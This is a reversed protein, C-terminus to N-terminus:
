KKSLVKCKIETDSSTSSMRRKNPMSATQSIIHDLTLKRKSADWIETLKSSDTTLDKLINNGELQLTQLLKVKTNENNAYYKYIEVTLRITHVILDVIIFIQEYSMTTINQLHLLESVFKSRIDNDWIIDKYLDDFSKNSYLTTILHERIGNSRLIIMVDPGFNDPSDYFNKYIVNMMDDTLTDKISEWFERPNKSTSIENIIKLKTMSLVEIAIQMTTPLSGFRSYIMSTFNNLTALLNIMVENIVIAKQIFEIHQLKEIDVELSQVRSELDNQPIISELDKKMEQAITKLQLKQFEFQSEMNQTEQLFKNDYENLVGTMNKLTSEVSKNTSSLTQITNSFREISDSLLKYKNEVHQENSKINEFTDLLSKNQSNFFRLYTAEFDNLKSLISDISQDIYQKTNNESKQVHQSLIEILTDPFTSLSSQIKKDVNEFAQEMYERTSYNHETIKDLKESINNDTNPYSFAEEAFNVSLDFGRLDPPLQPEFVSDTDSMEVDMQTSTPEEKVASPVLTDKVVAPVLTPKSEEKVVSSDFTQTPEQKMPRISALRVLMDNVERICNDLDFGPGSMTPLIQYKAVNERINIVHARTINIKLILEKLFQFQQVKLIYQGSHPQSLYKTLQTLLVNVNARASELYVKIENYQIELKELCDTYFIADNEVIKSNIYTLQNKYLQNTLRLTENIDNIYENLTTIYADINRM